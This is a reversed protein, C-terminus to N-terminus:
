AIYTPEIAIYQIPETSRRGLWALATLLAYYLQRRLGYKRQLAGKAVYQEEVSDVLRARGEVAPGKVKGSITCPALFVRSTHRIRKVKGANVGTEVYLTGERDAFWVPTAVAVGNKRFTTLNIYTEGALDAFAKPHTYRYPTPPM